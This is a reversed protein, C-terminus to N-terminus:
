RPRAVGFPNDGGNDDVEDGEEENETEEVEQEEQESDDHVSPEEDPEDDRVSATEPEEDESEEDDIQEPETERERPELVVSFEAIQQTMDVTVRESHFDDARLTLEIETETSNLESRYPTFGLWDGDIRISAGSPESNISLAVSYVTAEAVEEPDGQHDDDTPSGSEDAATEATTTSEASGDEFDDVEIPVDLLDESTSVFAFTKRVMVSGLAPANELRWGEVHRRVCSGVLDGLDNHAFALNNIIGESALRFELTINGEITPDLQLATEYCTEIDGLHERLEQNLLLPDFPTLMRIGNHAHDALEHEPYDDILMQYTMIAEDWQELHEYSIAANYYASPALENDTAQNAVRVFQLAALSYDEANFSAMAEQFAQHAQALEEDSMAQVDPTEVEVVVPNELSTPDDVENGLMLAAVLGGAALAMAALFIAVKAGRRKQGNAMVTTKVVDSEATIEETFGESIGVAPTPPVSLPGLMQGGAAKLAERMEEATQFRKTVDKQIAGKIVGYLSISAIEDPIPILDPSMQATIIEAVSYGVVASRGTLSEIMMLGLAYLDTAPVVGQSKLLEPAAYNPTCLLMGSETKVSQLDPLLAKAIGFDLVKVYDEEGELKTIRINAPKLDRHVIGLKHAESLSNLIQYTIRFVREPSIGGSRTIIEQLDRGPVLEMAMYLCGEETMGADWIKITNHHKLQRCLSLEQYFRDAFSKKVSKEPELVKLAVEGSLKADRARYVVAFGGEGLISLVEYRGAVHEGVKPMAPHDSLRERHMQQQM